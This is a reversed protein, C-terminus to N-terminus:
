LEGYGFSYMHELTDPTHNNFQIIKDLRIKVNNELLVYENHEDQIFEKIIATVSCQEEDKWYVFLAPKKRIAEIELENYFADCVPVYVDQM